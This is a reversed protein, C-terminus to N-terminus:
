QNDPVRSVRHGTRALPFGKQFQQLDPWTYALKSIGSCVSHLFDYPETMKNTFEEPWECIRSKEVRVVLRSNSQCLIAIVMGSHFVNVNPVM